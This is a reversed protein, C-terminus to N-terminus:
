RGVVSLHAWRKNSRILSILSADVGYERAIESQKSGTASRIAIVDAETLRSTVVDAGRPTRHRGKKMKDAMNEADTGLFLHDPNICVPNDCRHCVLMGAPIPGRHAEYSARHTSITRNNVSFKGYRGNSRSGTWNWCGTERDIETRALLRDIIISM